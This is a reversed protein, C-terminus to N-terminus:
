VPLGLLLLPSLVILALPVVVLHVTERVRFGLDLGTPPQLAWRLSHDAEVQARLAGAVEAASQGPLDDSEDLITQLRDRLKAEGRIQRRTRGVTNVYFAQEKIRHGRLYALRSERTRAAGDPYGD